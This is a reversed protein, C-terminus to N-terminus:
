RQPPMQLLTVQITQETGNRVITVEVKDGIDHQRLGEQLQKTSTLEQGEFKVMIDGQRIGARDASSFRVVSAVLLGEQRSLNMEAHISPTIALVSVGLRVVYGKKILDEIIPKATNVSIAFGIGQAGRIIATNIGVVEGKLNVLPGGSNGPNIAADTQILDLLPGGSDAAITRGLAGVVGATVTPGGSLNLANGIAVVWDGVQLKDSDGLVAVPLNDGDIKIVALDSSPDTGILKAAFSRGDNLRVTIERADEVVHNNTVIYGREDIIAGSGAAEQPVPQLFFDLTVTEVTISVVAPRVKQTVEAVPPLPYTIVTIPSPVATATATPVTTATPTPTAQPPRTCSLALLGIVLLFSFSGVLTKARVM